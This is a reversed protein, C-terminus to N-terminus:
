VVPLPKQGKLFETNIFSNGDSVAELIKKDYISPFPKNFVRSARTLGVRRVIKSFLKYKKEELINSLRLVELVGYSPSKNSVREFHIMQEIRDDPLDIQRLFDAELRGGYFNERDFLRVRFRSKDFYKLWAKLNSAYDWHSRFQELHSMRESWSATERRPGRVAQAYLSKLFSIQDRLYLIFVFDGFIKELNILLQELAPDDSAHHLFIFESSSVFNVVGESEKRIANVEREVNKWMTEAVGFFEERSLAKSREVWYDYADETGCSVALSQAHGLGFAKIQRYGWGTTPHSGLM